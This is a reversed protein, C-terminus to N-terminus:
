ARVALENIVEEVGLVYWADAEAMERESDTPVLGRLTVVRGSTAARIQSANVFPDKELAIRVADTIQDDSDSEAPSEALGNVVDRCGPVWWALVGALRKHGLGPVEGNLTVVGDEVAVEIWDRSAAPPERVLEARGAIRLKLTLEAFAPEELLADRVLDRIQGDGM